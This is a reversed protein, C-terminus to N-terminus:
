KRKDFYTERITKDVSEKLITSLTVANLYSTYIEKDKSNKSKSILASLLAMTQFALDDDKVFRTTDTLEDLGGSQTIYKIKPGITGNGQKLLATGYNELIKKQTSGENTGYPYCVSVPDGNFSKFEPTCTKKSPQAAETTASISAYIANKLVSSISIQKEVGNIEIKVDAYKVQAMELIKEVTVGQNSALTTEATQNKAEHPLISYGLIGLGIFFDRTANKGNM